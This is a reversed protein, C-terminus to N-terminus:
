ENRPCKNFPRRTTLLYSQNKRRHLKSKLSTSLSTTLYYPFSRPLRYSPQYMSDTFAELLFHSKLHVAFMTLTLWANALNLLTM